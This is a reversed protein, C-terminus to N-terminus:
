LVRDAGLRELLACFQAAMSAGAAVTVPAGPERGRLGTVVGGAETVVLEGAARDWPNLGAEFYGDLRGAAVACLDLAASGLRRLDGVLPLLEAAVRGQRARMGSDYGFGTGVVARDVPVARPERLRLSAQGYGPGDLWAGGGLTARFLEGTAPNCVAGAVVRGSVEAAVSVAYQPLGLVYNVTGDVPDVIWRVATSGPRAGGEEGLVADDPRDRAIRDVLWRESARDVETVLDTNTSKAGVERAAPAATMRRVLEAAGSALRVAYRGLEAM